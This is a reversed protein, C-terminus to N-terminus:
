PVCGIAACRTPCAQRSCSRVPALPLLSLPGRLLVDTPLQWIRVVRYSFSEYIQGTPDRREIRGTLEPGNARPRLLVVLSIIPRREREYLLVNYRHVREPLRRDRSTQLEVHLLWPSRRALGYCSMPRLGSLTWVPRRDGRRATRESVPWPWGPQGTPSLWCSPRRISRSVHAARDPSARRCRTAGGRWRVRDRDQFTAGPWRTLGHGPIRPRAYRRRPESVTSWRGSPLSPGAPSDSNASCRRSTPRLRGTSIVLEASIRANSYGRAVLVAVDRERRTLVLPRAATAAGPVDCARAGTTDHPVASTLADEIAEDLPTASGAEWAPGFDSGLHARLITLAAECASRDVPPVPVGIAQRLTAAAGFLRAALVLGDTDPRPPAPERPPATCTCPLWGRSVSRSGQGSPREESPRSARPTSAPLRSPAVRPGPSGAWTSRRPALAARIGWRM